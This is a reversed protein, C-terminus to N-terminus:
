ADVSARISTALAAAPDLKNTRLTAARGTTIGFATAIQVIAM